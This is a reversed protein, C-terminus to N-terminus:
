IAERSQLNRLAFELWMGPAVKEYGMEQKISQRISEIIGGRITALTHCVECLAPIATM